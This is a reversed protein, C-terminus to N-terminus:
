IRRRTNNDPLEAVPTGRLERAFTASLEATAERNETEARGTGIRERATVSSYAARGRRRVILVAIAAVFALGVVAGIVAGVIARPGMDTSAGIPETAPSTTPFPAQTRPFSCTDGDAVIPALRSETTNRSVHLTHTRADRNVTLVAATLFIIGLRSSDPIDAGIPQVRLERMTDDYTLIGQDSVRRAPTSIQDNSIVIQLGGSLTFLLDGKWRYHSLQDAM